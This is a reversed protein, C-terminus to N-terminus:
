HPGYKLRGAAASWPINHIQCDTCIRYGSGIGDLTIGNAKAYRSILGEAHVGAPGRVQIEGPALSQIKKPLWGGQSSSVLTVPDGQANRGIGVAINTGYQDSAKQLEVARADAAQQAKMMDRARILDAVQQGAGGSPKNAPPEPPPEAPPSEPPSGKEGLLSGSPGPQELPGEVLGGGIAGGVLGGLLGGAFRARDITQGETDEGTALEVAAVGLNFAGYIALGIALEPGAIAIAGAALIGFGVGEVFGEGFGEGFRELASPQEGSQVSPTASSSPAPGPSGAPPGGGGSSTPAPTPDPQKPHEAPPPKVPKKKDKPSPITIELPTTFTIITTGYDSAPYTTDATWHGFEDDGQGHYTVDFNQSVDPEDSQTGSGDTFRVPNASVYAYLNIGDGLGIPDPSTWRGLWPAYYRAGFYYLGTEHDREKGTFRYRKPTEVGARVSQYSTGGYPYYEECTIVLASEDLELVSSDQRNSLQYRVLQAPGDDDGVTRTEVLAVRREDDVISLTERELTVTGDPGRERYLEFPGIYIRECRASGGDARDTVKRVRQGGDDYVYYTAEPSGGKTVRQRSTVRLLDNQDWRMSPIPSMSTTNGQEDYAYQARALSDDRGSSTLRNSFHDPELLSPEQYDFDRRWGGILPDASRHALRLLNGVDDYVYRERYRAMAAGDGPQPLGARPDDSAARPVPRPAGVLAQGVHERGSSEILRYLADYCYSSSPAVVRNRFFICQQAHDAARTPNGVPDYTYRLDQLRRSSRLTTTRTLRWTQPDYEHFSVCGNGYAVRTRNGRADYEVHEVYTTAPEAGRLHAAIRVLQSTANYGPVIVSQDPATMTTLRNLADYATRTTFRERELAVETTWDTVHRYDAALQRWTELLNGKFDFSENVAVGAGDELRVMRTRLNRVEADAVDEGYEARSQLVDGAIGPGRVYTRLLRRLPDYEGRFRFGRSNEFVISVGTVDTLLWGGATDMGANRVSLGLMTYQYRMVARGLADRAERLNGQIDLLSRSPIHRDGVAGAAVVRNHAVSLFTRGLADGFVRMPTAAHLETHEAARQESTGLAGDIRQQYWTSWDGREEALRDAYRGVCDRVDPDVRPDLLVTDNADWTDQQWPDFVTKEYSDNPHLAAIVRGTPDYFIVSSVGNARAFEFRPTDSFFPEYSRIPNGKNDYVTWGTGIWRHRHMPGDTGLPGPGAQAKAQIARGFGDSHTFTRQINTQGGPPLDSEHTERALVAAWAPRPHEEHRTRLFADTDYLVRTTARGLLSHSDSFPDAAYEALRDSQPDPDFGELTDGLREGPKGMQAGGAVRGLADYSVATRNRNPDSVLWPGLVRYDNGDRTLMGRPDREGATSRNGLADRRESVLLNYRDYSMSTTHGFADRFRHPLFFHERAYEHEADAGDSADPSFFAEGSPLWWIGDEHVYGAARLTEPDAAGRYLHTVLDDPLAARYSRYPLARPELVGLPLPGGLDDRRYIVQARSLMRRAVAGLGSAEVDWAQFPLETQIGDLAARLEARRLPRFRREPSADAGALGPRLGIVEFTRTDSPLPTRNAEPTEVANTYRTETYAVYQKRQRAQDGDGLSPDTLCRGYAVAASRLPNGWDDVELVLTHTMRPDARPGRETPYLRREYHATLTEAAVALFVGHYNRPGDPRPHTTPQLMEITYNHESVAYPRREAESGDVAYVETRLVRGMLSRYAERVDIPSLRWPQSPAGPTRIATPLESDPLQVDGDSPDRYYDEAHLRSVDPGASVMGTHLWTRTLVPPLDSVPDINTQSDPGAQPNLVAIEATDWQEVMGFGRFERELGDYCGHHYAYRATFACRNVRDITEVREVVQVPFPLRNRWPRGATEDALYFATSPAYTVRVEAGLNNVVEALLYPKGKAMLDVYRMQRGSEGPLPSSWVLCATGRGLLDAVLVDALGDIQPFGPSVVQPEGFGNGSRNLYVQVGDPHLYLLDVCGTGDVDALRVRRQDFLDPADMWPSRDMTVKAGFRAFGLNPWYCVEGNRVRVLDSLGDGSMDALHITQDPDAFVVRPGKDEELAPFTSSGDGFGEYGLSPYWTYADDTTILADARGDGNLDVLRLDPDSWAINPRSRFPRFARWDRDNTREYYGSGPGDMDVVCLHGDGRLDLLRQAQSATGSPQTRLVMQAGFRAGGLNRKYLWSGGDRALIGSLGEGDLDILQYRDEAIGAPVNELASPPTDRPTRDISAETYGFELPPLSRHVFSGAHRRYGTHVVSAVTTMGSGGTDRYSIDTSRVLCDRGVGPEHPFHHFMLIRRCRRYTRLEFGPRYTSFPDPRCPWPRTPRPEPTEENHDGYDFVVEFLWGGDGRVDARPDGVSRPRTNGYRIRKPYRGASRSQESRNRECALDERVEHSDEPQYDYLTANGRDDYSECILWSFIRDPDAPDSIRSEATLGYLTTVSGRSITRWHTEGSAVDRWREIRAFLGEVRPRYAQVVYKHDGVVRRHSVQRWKGDCWERTPVLDEADSLVFVDHDPDDLYRPLGSDTKRTITPLSVRWGLGFPGNGAGSDYSLSLSPGFGLRGPSVAIPVSLQATGTAADVNFTEGIDRIAGGGKPLSISPVAPPGGAAPLPHPDANPPPTQVLPGSAWDGDITAPGGGAAIM